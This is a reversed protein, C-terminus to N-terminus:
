FLSPNLDDNQLWQVAEYILPTVDVMKSAAYAARIQGQLKEPLRKWCASCLIRRDKRQGTCGPKACAHRGHQLQVDEEAM